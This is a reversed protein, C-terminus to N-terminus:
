RDRQFGYRVFVQKTTDRGIRRGRKIEGVRTQDMGDLQQRMEAELPQLLQNEQSRPVRHHMYPADQALLRRISRHGRIGPRM